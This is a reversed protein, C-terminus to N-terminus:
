AMFIKHKSEVKKKKKKARRQTELAIAVAQNHPKGHAEETEINQGVAEKSTSKVLPM